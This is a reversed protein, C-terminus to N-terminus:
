IGQIWQAIQQMVYRKADESFHHPMEPYFLTKVPQGREYLARELRYAHEISVHEDKEGHIIFVPVHIHVIDHLPTRWQYARPKVDPTGGTVRRLMRRLDPREEYTLRMDSVGGWVIVSSVNREMATFLAMVAGRSFGMVHLDQNATEAVNALVDFAQVADERDNGCFDEKGEGGANGRYYPAFVVYGQQTLEKIWDQKVMGVKKLGGRLYLIGPYTGPKAPIGLCGKVSYSASKYTVEYLTALPSQTIKQKEM